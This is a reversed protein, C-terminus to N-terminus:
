YTDVFRLMMKVHLKFALLMNYIALAVIITLRKPFRYVLRPIVQERHSKSLSTVDM